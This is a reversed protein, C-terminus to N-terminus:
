QKAPFSSKTCDISLALFLNRRSVDSQSRAQSTGLDWHMVSTSALRKVACSMPVSKGNGMAIKAFFATGRSEFRMSLIQSLWQDSCNARSRRINRQLTRFSKESTDIRIWLYFTQTLSLGIAIFISQEIINKISTRKELNSVGQHNYAQKGRACIVDFPGPVLRGQKKTHRSAIQHLDPRQMSRIIDIAIM